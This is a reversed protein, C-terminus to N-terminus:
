KREEPCGCFLCFDESEEENPNPHQELVHRKGDKLVVVFNGDNNVGETRYHCRYDPSHPCWWGLRSRCIKCRVSGWDEHGFQPDREDEVKGPGTPELSEVPHQCNDPSCNFDYPTPGFQLAVMGPLVTGSTIVEMLDALVEWALPLSARRVEALADQLVFGSLYFSGDRQRNVVGHRVRVTGDTGFEARNIAERTWPSGDPQTEHIVKSVKFESDGVGYERTTVEVRIKGNIETILVNAM